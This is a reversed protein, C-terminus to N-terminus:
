LTRAHNPAHVGGSETSKFFFDPLRPTQQPQATKLKVDIWNAFPFPSLVPEKESLLAWFFRKPNLREEDGELEELLQDRKAQAAQRADEQAKLQKETVSVKRKPETPNEFVLKITPGSSMQIANLVQNFGVGRTSWIEDGFTASCMTM